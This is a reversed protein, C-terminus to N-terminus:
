GRDGGRVSAEYERVKEPSYLPHYQTRDMSIYSIKMLDLILENITRSIYFVGDLMGDKRIVNQAARVFDKGHAYYFFGAVAHESIPRKEAVEVIQDDEFRAYTWRPHVSQFCILGADARERKFTDLANNLDLDIIQDYNTIILPDNNDIYDIAILSTCLAGQTKEKLIIVDANGKTMIMVIDDLHFKLCDEERLVFIFHKDSISRYNDVMIQIMPKGNVEVLPKPYFNNSFFEAGGATPVLINVM